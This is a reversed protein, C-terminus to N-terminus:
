VAARFLRQRDGAGPPRTVNATRNATRTAGGGAAPASMFWRPRRAPTFGAAPPPDRRTAPLTRSLSFVNFVGYIWRTQRTYVKGPLSLLTIRQLGTSQRGQSTAVLLALNELIAKTTIKPNKKVERVIRRALVPTVKPKWGRGRLNEVTCFTKYKKIISQVTAVPVQFCKSIAKYDKGSKHAAVICTRLSSRQRLWSLGCVLQLSSSNKVKVPVFMMRVKLSRLKYEQCVCSEVVTSELCYKRFEVLM